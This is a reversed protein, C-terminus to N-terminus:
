GGCGTADVFTDIVRERQRHFEEDTLVGAERLEALGRLEALVEVGTVTEEPDESPEPDAQKPATVSTIASRSRHEAGVTGASRTLARGAAGALAMEAFPIETRAAAAAAAVAPATSSQASLLTIERLATPAAAAWTRPVSMAGVPIAKAVGARVAAPQGASVLGASPMSAAIPVTEGLLGLGAAGGFDGTFGLGAFPALSATEIALGGFELGAGGGEFPAISDVELLAVLINLLLGEEGAGDYSGGSTDDAPATFTPLQTAAAANTAYDYMATADQAWMESYHAETAAIAPTNTGLFNTAILTALQTRNAAIVAPPVTMAYATEYATAAAAAQTGAHGAKTATTSMWAAYPTAAATMAAASPGQWTQDTLGAIVTRFNNAATELEAAMTKWATAAARIPGSGAGAYMLASNVEPPLAAFNM